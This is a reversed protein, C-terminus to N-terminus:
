RGAYAAPLAVRPMVAFIRGRAAQQHAWAHLWLVDGPLLAPDHAIAIVDDVILMLALIHGGLPRPECILQRARTSQAQVDDGVTTETGSM